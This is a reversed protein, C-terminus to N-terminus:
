EWPVEPCYAADEDQEDSGLIDEPDPVQLAVGEFNLSNNMMELDHVCEFFNYETEPQQTEYVGIPNNHIQLNSGSFYSENIHIGVSEAREVKIDHVEVTSEYLIGLNRGGYLRGATSFGKTSSITGSRLHARAGNRVLLGVFENGDVTFEELLVLAGEVVEVAGTYDFSGATIAQNHVQPHIRNHNASFNRATLKTGDGSVYLAQGRNSPVHVDDFVAITGGSLVIARGSLPNADLQRTEKVVCNQMNLRGGSQKLGHMPAQVIKINRLTLQFQTNTISGVIEPKTEDGIIETDRNISLDGSYSGQSLLVRVSLANVQGARELAAIITRYPKEESGDGGYGARSSVHLTVLSPRLHLDEPDQQYVQGQSAAIVEQELGNLAATMEQLATRATASDGSNAYARMAANLREVNSVKKIVVKKKGPAGIRHTKQIEMASNSLSDVWRKMTSLVYPDRPPDQLSSLRKIEKKLAAIDAKIGSVKFQQKPQQLSGTLTQSLLTQTPWLVFLSPLFVGTLFRKYLSRNVTM